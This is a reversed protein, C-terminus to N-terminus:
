VNMGSPIQPSSGSLDVVLTGDDVRLSAHVRAPASGEFGDDDLFGEAQVTRAPWSRFAAEARRATQDLLAAMGAQVADLGHVGALEELRNMGRACAALQADLDGVTAAPD